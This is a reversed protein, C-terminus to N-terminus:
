DDGAGKKKEEARRQKNKMDKSPTAEARNQMCGDIWWEGTYVYRRMMMMVEGERGRPCSM